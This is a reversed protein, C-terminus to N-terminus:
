RYSSRAKTLHLMLDPDADRRNMNVQFSADKRTNIRRQMQKLMESLLNEAVELRLRKAHLSQSLSDNDRRYAKLENETTELKESVQVIKDLALKADRSMKKLCTSEMNRSIEQVEKTIQERTRILSIFHSLHILLLVSLEVLVDHIILAQNSAEMPCGCVCAWKNSPITATSRFLLM